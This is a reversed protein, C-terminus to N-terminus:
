VRQFVPKTQGGNKKSLERKEDDQGCSGERVAAPVPQPSPAGDRDGGAKDQYQANHRECKENEENWDFFMQPCSCAFTVLMDALGARLFPVTSVRRPQLAPPLNM